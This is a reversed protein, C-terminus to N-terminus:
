LPAGAARLAELSFGMVMPVSGCAHMSISFWKMTLMALPMSRPCTRGVVVVVVFDCLMAAM